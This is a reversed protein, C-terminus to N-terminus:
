TVDDAVYDLRYIKEVLGAPYEGGGVEGGVEQAVFDGEVALAGRGERGKRSFNKFRLPLIM